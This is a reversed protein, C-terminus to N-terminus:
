LIDSGADVIFQAVTAACFVFISGIVVYTLGQKIDARKDASALMYRVGLIVVCAISLIQVVVTVTAWINGMTSELENGAGPSIPDPFDISDAHVMFSTAVVICIMLLSAIVKKKM